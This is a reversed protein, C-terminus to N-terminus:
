PFLFFLFPTGPRSLQNLTWSMIAAQTMIDHTTLDLGADSEVSVLSDAQSKRGETSGFVAKFFITIPCGPHSLLKAGAKPGPRSEPSGPDLVM